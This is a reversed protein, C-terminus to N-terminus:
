FYFLFDKVKIPIQGQTTPVIQAKPNLKKIISIVQNLVDSTVLDSKNLVIINAFEVQELLLAAIARKDDENAAIGRTSLYDTSELNQFFNHADM